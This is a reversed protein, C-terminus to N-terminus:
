VAITSFIKFVTDFSPRQDPDPDLMKVLIDILDPSYPPSIKTDLLFSKLETSTYHKYFQTNALVHFITISMAFFDMSFIVKKLLTQDKQKIAQDLHEIDMHSLSGPTHTSIPKFNKIADEIFLSGGFDSLILNDNQDVFINELKIDGHWLNNDKVQKLIGILIKVWAVRQQTTVPKELREFLDGSFLKGTYGYLKESPIDFEAITAPQFQTNEPKLHLQKLISIENSITSRITSFIPSDAVQKLTVLEGLAIDWVRSIKSCQSIRIDSHHTIIHVQGNAFKAYLSASNLNEAIGGRIIPGQPFLLHKKSIKSIISILESYNFGLYQCNRGNFSLVGKADLPKYKDLMEAYPLLIGTHKEIKSTLDDKSLGEKSLYLVKYILEEIKNNHEADMLEKKCKEKIAEIKGKIDTEKEKIDAEKEKRESVDKTEVCSFLFLLKILQPSDKTRLNHSFTHDNTTVVTHTEASLTKEDKQKQSIKKNLSDLSNSLSQIYENDPKHRKAPRVHVAELDEELEQNKRKDTPLQRTPIKSVVLSTKDLSVTM